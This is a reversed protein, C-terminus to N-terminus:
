RHDRGLKGGRERALRLGAGSGRRERGGQRPMGTRQPKPLPHGAPTPELGPGKPRQNNGRKKEGKRKGGGRNKPALKKGIIQVPFTSRLAATQSADKQNRRLQSSTFNTPRGQFPRREGTTLPGATVTSDQSHKRKREKTRYM